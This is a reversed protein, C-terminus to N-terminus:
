VGHPPPWMTRGMRRGGVCALAQGRWPSGPLEMRCERASEQFRGMEKLALGIVLHTRVLAPDIQWAAEALASANQTKRRLAAIPSTARSRGHRAGHGSPPRM